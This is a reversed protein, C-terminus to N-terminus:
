CHPMVHIGTLVVSASDTNYRQGQCDMYGTMKSSGQELSCVKCVWKRAAGTPKWHYDGILSRGAKMELVALGAKKFLSKNGM